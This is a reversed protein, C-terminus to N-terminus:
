DKIETITFNIRFFTESNCSNVATDWAMDDFVDGSLDLLSCGNSSAPNLCGDGCYVNNMKVVFVRKIILNDATSGCKAEVISMETASFSSIGFSQAIQKVDNAIQSSDVTSANLEDRLDFDSEKGDVVDDVLNKLHAFSSQGSSPDYAGFFGVNDNEDYLDYSKLLYDFTDGVNFTQTCGNVVIPVFNTVHGLLDKEAKADLTFFKLNM